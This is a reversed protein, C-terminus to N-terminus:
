LLVSAWARPNASASGVASTSPCSTCALIHMRALSAYPYAESERKRARTGHDYVAEHTVVLSKCKM